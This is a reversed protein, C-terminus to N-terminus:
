SISTFVFSVIGVLIQVILWAGVVIAVNKGFHLWVNKWEQDAPYAGIVPIQQLFGDKDSSNRGAKPDQFLMRDIATLVVKAIFLVIAIGLIWRTVTQVVGAINAQTVVTPDINAQGTASSIMENPEWGVASAKQPLSMFAAAVGSIGLLVTGIKKKIDFM